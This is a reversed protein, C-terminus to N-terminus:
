KECLDRELVLPYFFNRAFLLTYFRILQYSFQRAIKRVGSMLGIQKTMEHLPTRGFGMRLVNAVVFGRDNSINEHQGVFGDDSARTTVIPDRM